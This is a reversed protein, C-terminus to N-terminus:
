GVKAHTETLGLDDREEIGQEYKEVLLACEIGLDTYSITSEM